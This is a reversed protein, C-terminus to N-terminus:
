RQQLYQKPSCGMQNQFVRDFGAETLYGLSEAIEAINKTKNTMMNVACEMKLLTRYESATMGVKKKIIRSMENRDMELEAAAATVTHEEYIHNDLAEIIKEAEKGIRNLRYKKVLRTMEELYCFLGWGLDDPNVSCDMTEYKELWPVKELIMEWMQEQFEQLNQEQDEPKSYTRRIKRLIKNGQEFAKWEDELIYKLFIRKESQWTEMMDEERKQLYVTRCMSEGYSFSLNVCPMRGQIFRDKRKIIRMKRLKDIM